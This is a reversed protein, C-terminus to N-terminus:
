RRRGSRLRRRAWLRAAPRRWCRRLALRRMARVLILRELGFQDLRQHAGSLHPQQQHLAIQRGIRPKVVIDAGPDAVRGIRQAVEALEAVDLAVFKGPQDQPHPGPVQRVRVAHDADCAGVRLRRLEDQRVIGGAGRDVPQANEFVPQVRRFPHVPRFIVTPAVPRHRADSEPHLLAGSFARDDPRVIQM